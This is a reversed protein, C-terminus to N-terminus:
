RPLPRFPEGRACHRHLPAEEDRRQVDGRPEARRGHASGGRHAAAGGDERESPEAGQRRWVARPAGGRHAGGVSHRAAPVGRHRRPHPGHREPPDGHPGGGAGGRVNPDAGGDAHQHCHEQRRRKPRPPLVAPGEADCLPSGQRRSLRLRGEPVDQRGRAGGRGLLRADAPGGAGEGRGGRGPRRWGRLTRPAGAGRAGREARGAGLLEAPSLVLPAQARGDPRPPCQRPLAGRPDLPRLPRLLHGLHQRTRIDSRM